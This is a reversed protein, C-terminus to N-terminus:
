ASRTIATLILGMLPIRAATILWSQQQRSYGVISGDSSIGEAYTNSAGPFDLTMDDIGSYLFGHAIRNTDYYYGVVNGNQDIGTAFTADVGLPDDLTTWVSNSYFFVTIAPATKIVDLQGISRHLWAVPAATSSSM